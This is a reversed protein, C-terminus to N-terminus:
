RKYVHFQRPPLINDELIHHLKDDPYEHVSVRPLVNGVTAGEPVEVLGGLSLDNTAGMLGGSAVTEVADRLNLKTFTDLLETEKVLPPERM